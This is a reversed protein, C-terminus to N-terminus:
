NRGLCCVWLVPHHMYLMSAVPPCLFLWNRGFWCARVVPTCIVCWTLWRLPPPPPFMIFSQFDFLEVWDAPCHLIFGELILHNLLLNYFGLKLQFHMGPFGAVAPLGFLPRPIFYFVWCSFPAWATCFWDGDIRLALCPSKFAKTQFLKNKARGAVFLDPRKPLCLWHKIFSNLHMGDNYLLPWFYSSKWMPVILTGVAKCERM